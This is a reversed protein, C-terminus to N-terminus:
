LMVVLSEDIGSINSLFKADTLPLNKAKRFIKGM